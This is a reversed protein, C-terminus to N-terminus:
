QFMDPLNQETDFELEASSHHAQTHDGMLQMHNEMAMMIVLQTDADNLEGTMPESIITDKWEYMRMTCGDAIICITDIGLKQLEFTYKENYQDIKKVSEPYVYFINGNEDEIVDEAEACPVFKNALDVPLAGYYLDGEQYSWFVSGIQLLGM